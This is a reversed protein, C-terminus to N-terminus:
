QQVTQNQVPTVAPAPTSDFNIVAPVEEKQQTSQEASNLVMVQPVEEKKAEGVLPNNLQSQNAGLNQNEVPATNAAPLTEDVDLIQKTEMAAIAAERGSEIDYTKKEKLKNAIAQRKRDAVIGLVYFFAFICVLVYLWYIIGSFFDRFFDLIIM